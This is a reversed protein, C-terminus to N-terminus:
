DNEIQIKAIGQNNLVAMGLTRYNVCGMKLNKPDHCDMSGLDKKVAVVGLFESAALVYITDRPIITSIHLDCNFVSGYYGSMIIDRQCAENFKDWTRINKYVFPHCFIKSALLEHELLFGCVSSINSLELKKTKVIHDLPCALSICNLANIDEKININKYSSSSLTTKASLGEDVDWQSFNKIRYFPLTFDEMGCEERIEGEDNAIYFIHNTKDVKYEPNTKLDSIDDFMFIKRSIPIYSPTKEIRQLNQNKFENDILDKIIESTNYVCGDKESKKTILDTLQRYEEENLRCSITKDSM